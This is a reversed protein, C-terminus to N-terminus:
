LHLDLRPSQGVSTSGPRVDNTNTSQWQAALGHNIVPTRDFRDHLKLNYFM